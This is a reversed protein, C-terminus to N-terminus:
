WTGPILKYIAILIPYKNDLIPTIQTLTGGFFIQKNSFNEHNKEM